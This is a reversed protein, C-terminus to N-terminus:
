PQYLHVRGTLANVQLVIYNDTTSGPANRPQLLLYGNVLTLGSPRGGGNFELGEWGGHDAILPSDEEEIVVSEPLRWKRSIPKPTVNGSSERVLEIVQYERVLADDGTGVRYFVLRTKRNHSIAHQRATTIAGAISEAGTRMEQSAVVKWSGISFSLLVALIAVVVLLEILTFAGSPHSPAHKM